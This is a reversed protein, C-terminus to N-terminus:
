ARESEIISVANDSKIRLARDRIAICYRQAKAMKYRGFAQNDNLQSLIDIWDSKALNYLRRDYFHFLRNIWFQKKPEDLETMTTAVLKWLEREQEKRSVSVRLERLYGRKARIYRKYLPCQM